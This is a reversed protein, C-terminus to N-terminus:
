PVPNHCAAARGGDKAGLSPAVACAHLARPCREQYSCGSPLARLDPPRGSLTPLRGRTGSLKPLSALLGQTYPHFPKSLVAATPGMECIEGAYMVALRDARESLLGINHSVLLVGLGMDKKLANLLDLIGGQLSADLATTPEDAILLRPSLAIAQAIVVRQRQGGSLQHPYSRAVRTAEALRVRGLLDEVAGEPCPRGHAAFTEAIQDRVTLVPNLASFPDQFVVGIGAGRVRRLDEGGLSLLDRGEFLIQGGAYEAPPQPLLRPVSMALTSKGCGSEGALGVTEGARVELSVGRVAAVSPGEPTRYRVSLNKVELLRGM